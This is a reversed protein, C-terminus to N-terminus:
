CMMPASGQLGLPPPTQLYALAAQLDRPQGTTAIDGSLVLVDYDVGDAPVSAAFIAFAKQLDPDQSSVLTPSCRFRVVASWSEPLGYQYPVAALHLDSAHLLRFRTM